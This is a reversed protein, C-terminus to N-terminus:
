DTGQAAVSSPGTPEMTRVSCGLARASHRRLSEPFPLQHRGFGRSDPRGGCESHWKAIPLWRGRLVVTCLGYCSGFDTSTQSQNSKILVQGSDWSDPSTVDRLLMETVIVRKTKGFRRILFIGNLDFVPAIRTLILSGVHSATM